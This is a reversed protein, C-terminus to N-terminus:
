KLGRFIFASRIREADRKVPRTNSAREAVANAAAASEVFSGVMVRAVRVLPKRTMMTWFGSAGTAVVTM